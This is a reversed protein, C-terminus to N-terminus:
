MHGQFDSIPSDFDASIKIQGRATGPQRIPKGRHVPIVVAVPVSPTGILFEEGHTVGDLISAFKQYAENLAITKM